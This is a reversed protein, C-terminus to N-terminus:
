AYTCCLSNLKLAYNKTTASIDEALFKVWLRCEIFCLIEYQAFTDIQSTVKFATGGRVVGGGVICCAAFVYGMNERKLFM